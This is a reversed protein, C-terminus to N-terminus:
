RHVIFLLAILAPQHVLYIFLSHRGMYAIPDFRPYFSFFGKRDAYLIKGLVVGLIFVGLWPFIPYYDFSSFGKSLLGLPFLFPSTVTLKSIREGLFLAGIGLVILYHTKWGGIYHHAAMGFGLLHLIGFRVYMKPDYFFTVFAIIMGYGFVQMGRKLSNKSLTASMGALVMFMIAATKGEYYWFGSTYEINYSYFEKLNYVLHFAIMLIIAIGRLFDIEWIRKKM